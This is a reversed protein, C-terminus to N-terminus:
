NICACGTFKFAVMAEGLAAELESEVVTGLVAEDVRGIVVEEGIGM